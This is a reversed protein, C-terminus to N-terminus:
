KVQDKPIYNDVTKESLTKKSAGKEAAKIILQVQTDKPPLLKDNSFYITDDAGSPLPNNIIAFPDRFTAIISGDTDAMYQGDVIQSGTFVWHTRQMTKNNQKDFVLEEARVRKKNKDPLEWEAFIDLSDGEPITPDGQYKLNNDNKFGLLLLAVQIDSPKADMKLVSEHLKGVEEHCALYEVLGNQMNISGSIFIERKNKDLIVNGIEYKDPGIQQISSKKDLPDKISPSDAHTISILISCLCIVVFFSMKFLIKKM